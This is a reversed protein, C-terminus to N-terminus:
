RNCSALGTPHTHTHTYLSTNEQSWLQREPTQLAKEKGSLETERCLNHREPLRCRGARASSWSSVAGPQAQKQWAGEWGVTDRGSCSGRHPSGPALLLSSSGHRLQDGLRHHLGPGSTQGPYSQILHSSTAPTAQCSPPISM